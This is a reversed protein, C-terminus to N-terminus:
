QWYIKCVVNMKLFKIFSSFFWCVGWRGVQKFQKYMATTVPDSKKVKNRVVQSMMNGVTVMGQIARCSVLFICTKFEGFIDYIVCSQSMSRSSKHRSIGMHKLDCASLYECFTEHSYCKFCKSYAVCFTQAVSLYWSQLSLSLDLPMFVLWMGSIM